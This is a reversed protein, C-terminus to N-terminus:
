ATGKTGELEASKAEETLVFFGEKKNKKNGKYIQTALAESDMTVNFNVTINVGKPKITFEQTGKKGLGIVDGLLPALEFQEMNLQLDAMTLAIAKAENVLAEVVQHPAKSTTGWGDLLVGMENLKQNKQAFEEGFELVSDIVGLVSDVGTAFNQSIGSDPFTVKTLMTTMNQLMRYLAGNPALITAVAQFM